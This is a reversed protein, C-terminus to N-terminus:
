ECAADCINFDDGADHGRQDGSDRCTQEPRGPDNPEPGAHSFNGVHPTYGPIGYFAGGFNKDRQGSFQERFLAGVAKQSGHWEVNPTVVRM